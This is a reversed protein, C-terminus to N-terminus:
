KCLNQWFIPNYREQKHWKLCKKVHVCVWKLFNKTEKRLFPKAGDREVYITVKYAKKIYRKGCIIRFM